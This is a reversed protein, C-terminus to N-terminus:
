LQLEDNVDKLVEERDLQRTLQFYRQLEQYSPVEWKRGKLPLVDIPGAIINCLEFKSIDPLHEPTSELINSLGVHPKLCDLQLGTTPGDKDYLFRLKAKAIFLTEKKHKYVCAYWKEIISEETTPPNLKKWLKRLYAIAQRKTSPLTEDDTAMPEDDDEKDDDDSSLIPNEQEEAEDEYANKVLKIKKSKQEEKEKLAQLYEDHTVLKAMLDVKSRKVKPKEVSPKIKDLLIEEFSKNSSCPMSTNPSFSDKTLEWRPKWHFGPPPTYPLPGLMDCKCITTSSAPTSQSASGTASQTTEIAGQVITEEARPPSPVRAKLPTFVATALDEVNDRPKGDAVWNNYRKLLRADFRREPYKTRDVPLIGTSTFGSVINSPKLGDHWVECVQEVFSAKDLRARSSGLINLRSNLMVEWKRKLPGFCAVDLPQLVDTVHPPFKLLHINEERAKEIISISIHTMHGDFILLLPREEILGCFKKFWETFIETTMWGNESLGYFTNPLAKAPKWTSQMNKGAFVIVPDLVRGAANCVALTTINERRAGSTTKYATQGKVSVVKCRQPDTPFGSEDCNWVQSASFKYTNVLEELLDYFDYIIFPNATVSKRASSIMNAKKLSLNNRLMFSKLWDNGPRSDKFVSVTITNQVLYNQVLEKIEERTPSFGVNCLVEICKALNSELEASMAPKRGSCPALSEGKERKKLKERLLHESMGCMTGAKRISTGNDIMDLAREIDADNYKRMKKVYQRPM